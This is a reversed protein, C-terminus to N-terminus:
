GAAGGARDLMALGRAILARAQDITAGQDGDGDDGRGITIPDGGDLPVLDLRYGCAHAIDALTSAQADRGRTMIQSVYADYKGLRRAIQRHTLGSAEVMARLATISDM